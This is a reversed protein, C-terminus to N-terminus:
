TLVLESRVPLYDELRALAPQSSPDGVAAAGVANATALATEPDLGRSLALVLAACFADGAGVTNVVPVSRGAVAAIQRGHSLLASGRGGYTVAVLRARELEPLLAYESENVIILDCREILEAPLTRAPAANLAFFGTTSRAAALVVSLDVELQCLVTEDPGIAVGALSLETNAGSCLAIQNEGDPDVVILATGTAADVRQVDSVEVGAASLAAVIAQGDADRGVAGIMRSRGALRAAAVAQNAGKGGAQRELRGGGVTEGPTPLRAGTAVLDVNISGVV